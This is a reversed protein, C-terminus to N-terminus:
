SGVAVQFDPSHAALAVRVASEVSPDVTIGSNQLTRVVHDIAEPDIRERDGDPVPVFAKNSSCSSCPNFDSGAPNVAVKRAKSWAGSEWEKMVDGEDWRALDTSAFWSSVCPSSGGDANAVFKGWLWRCRESEAKRIKEGTATYESYTSEPNVLTQRSREFNVAVPELVKTAMSGRAGGVRFIDVGIERALERAKDAEGENHALALYQWELLPRVSGIKEKWKVIAELNRLVLSLDGGVRYQEYVEQSVGDISLVLHDLGSEVLEPIDFNAVSLNTSSRSYLSVENAQRALGAFRRHLLPEGWNFLDLRIVTPSLGGLLKAYHEDRIPRRPRGKPDTSQVCLPCRLNCLSSPDVVAHYPGSTVIEPQNIEARRAEIWNDARSKALEVDKSGTLLLSSLYPQEAELTALPETEPRLYTTFWTM